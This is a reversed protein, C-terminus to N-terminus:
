ADQSIHPYNDGLFEEFTDREFTDRDFTDRARSTNLRSTDLPVKDQVKKIPTRPTNINMHSFKRLLSWRDGNCQIVCIQLGIIFLKTINMLIRATNYLITM